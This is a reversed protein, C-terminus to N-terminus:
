TWFRLQGNPGRGHTEEYHCTGKKTSPGCLWRGRTLERVFSSLGHTALQSLYRPNDVGPYHAFDLHVDIGMKGCQACVGLRRMERLLAVITGSGGGGSM